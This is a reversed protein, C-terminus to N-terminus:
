CYELCCERFFLVRGAPSFFVTPPADTSNRVEMIGFIDLWHNDDSEWQGGFRGHLFDFVVVGQDENNVWFGVFVLDFGGDFLHVLDINGSDVGQDSWGAVFFSVDLQGWIKIGKINGVFDSDDLHEKSM